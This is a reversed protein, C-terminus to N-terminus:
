RASLAFPSIVYGFQRPLEGFRVEAPKWHGSEVAQSASEMDMTHILGLGKDTQLFLRGDEDLWSSEVIAGLGTHSRVQPTGDPGM